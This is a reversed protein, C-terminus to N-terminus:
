GNNKEANLQERLSIYVSDLESDADELGKVADDLFEPNEQHKKIDFLLREAKYILKQANDLQKLDDKDLAM